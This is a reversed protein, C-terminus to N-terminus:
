AAGTVLWRDTRARLWLAVLRFAMFATFSWWLLQLAAVADDLTRGDPLTNTM